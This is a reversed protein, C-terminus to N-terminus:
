ARYAKYMREFRRSEEHTKGQKNKCKEYLKSMADDLLARLANEMAEDKETKKKLKVSLKRYM